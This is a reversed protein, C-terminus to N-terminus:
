KPQLETQSSLYFSEYLKRRAPFGFSRYSKILNIDEKQVQLMKQYKNEIYCIQFAQLHGDILKWASVDM